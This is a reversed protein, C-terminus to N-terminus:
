SALPHEVHVNVGFGALLDVIGDGSEDVMLYLKFHANGIEVNRKADLHLDTFRFRVTVVTGGSYNVEILEVAAPDRRARPTARQFIFDEYKATGKYIKWEVTMTIEEGLVYKLDRWSSTVSVTTAGIIKPESWEVLELTAGASMIALVTVTLLPVLSVAAGFVKKM